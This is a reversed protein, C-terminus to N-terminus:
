RAAGPSTADFTGTITVGSNPDGAQSAKITFTGAVARNASSTFTITGSVSEFGGGSMIAPDLEFAAILRGAPGGSAATALDVLPYTGPAPRGGLDNQIMFHGSGGDEM